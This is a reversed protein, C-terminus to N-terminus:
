KLFSNLALSNDAVVGVPGLVSLGLAFEERFVDVGVQAGV